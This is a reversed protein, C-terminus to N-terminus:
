RSMTDFMKFNDIPYPDIKINDEISISRNKRVGTQCSCAPVPLQLLPHAFITCKSVTPELNSEQLERMRLVSVPEQAIHMSTGFCVSGGAVSVRTSLSRTCGSLRDTFIQLTLTSKSLQVAFSCNMTHSNNSQEYYSHGAIHEVNEQPFLRASRAPLDRLNESPCPGVIDPKSLSKSETSWCEGQKCRHLEM